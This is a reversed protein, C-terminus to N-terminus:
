AWGYRRRNPQRKPISSSLRIQEAPVGYKALESPDGTRLCSQMDRAMRRIYAELEGDGSVQQADELMEATETAEPAIRFVHLLVDSKVIPELQGFVSQLFPLVSALNNSEDLPVLGFHLVQYRFRSDGTLFAATLIPLAENPPMRVYLEHASDIDSGFRREFLEVTQGATDRGSGTEISSDGEGRDDLYPGIQDRINQLYHQVIVEPMEMAIGTAQNPTGEVGGLMLPLEENLLVELEADQPRLESLFCNLIADLDRLKQNVMGYRAAPPTRAADGAGDPELALAVFHKANSIRVSLPLMGINTSGFPSGGPVAGDGGALAGFSNFAVIALISARTLIADM